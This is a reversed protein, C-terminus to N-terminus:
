RKRRHGARPPQDLELQVYMFNLMQDWSEFLMYRTLAKVDNFFTKRVRLADRLRHYTQDCLDLVTHLLFALLNLLVLIM